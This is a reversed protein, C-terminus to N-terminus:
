RSYHSRGDPEQELALFQRAVERGLQAAEEMPLLLAQPHLSPRASAAERSVFFHGQLCLDERVHCRDTEAGPLRVSVVASARELREIRM